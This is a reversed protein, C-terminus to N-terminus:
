ALLYALVELHDGADAKVKLSFFNINEPMRLGFGDM